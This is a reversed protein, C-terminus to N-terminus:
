GATIASRVAIPSGIGHLSEIGQGTGMVHISGYGLIRGMISQEVNVTEVKDMNMEATHRWIFGRKYVVRHTTVSLESTSRKFWAALFLVAAIALVLWGAYAVIQGIRTAEQEGYMLLAAGVAGFLLSRIFITWHMRGIIKVTEGPQLVSNVYAV